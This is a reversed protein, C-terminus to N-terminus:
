LAEAARADSEIQRVDALQPGSPPGLDNEVLADRQANLLGERKKVEDVLKKIEKNKVGKRYGFDNKLAFTGFFGGGGIGIALAQILDKALFAGLVAGIVAYFLAAAVFQWRTDARLDDRLNNAMTEVAQIGSADIQKEEALSDLRTSLNDLRAFGSEVRARGATGPIGAGIFGFATIFAGALGALALATGTAYNNTRLWSPLSPSVSTQQPARQRGRRPRRQEASAVTALLVLSVALVLVVTIRLRSARRV